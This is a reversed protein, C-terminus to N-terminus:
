KDFQNSYAYWYYGSQILIMVVILIIYAKLPIDVSLYNFKDWDKITYNRRVEAEILPLIKNNIPNDLLVTELNRKVISNETWGFVYSWGDGYCL